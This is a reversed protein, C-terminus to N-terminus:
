IILSMEIHENKYKKEMEYPQPKTKDVHLVMTTKKTRTKDCSNNEYLNYLKKFYCLSILPMM